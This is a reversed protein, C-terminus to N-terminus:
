LRGLETRSGEAFKWDSLQGANTNNLKHSHNELTAHRQVYSNTNKWKEKVLIKKVQWKLM